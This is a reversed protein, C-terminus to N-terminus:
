RAGGCKQGRTRRGALLREFRDSVANSVRIRQRHSLQSDVNAAQRIEHLAASHDASAAEVLYTEVNMIDTSCGM